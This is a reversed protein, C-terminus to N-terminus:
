DCSNNFRGLNDDDEVVNMVEEFVTLILSAHPSAKRNQLAIFAKALKSFVLSVVETNKLNVCIIFPKAVVKSNTTIKLLPAWKIIVDNLVKGIHPDNRYDINSIFICLPEKTNIFEAPHIKATECISTFDEFKMVHKTLEKLHNNNGNSILISSKIWFQMVTLKDISKSQHNKELIITLFRIGDEINLCNIELFTKFTVDFKPVDNPDQDQFDDALLCLNAIMAPLWMSENEGFIEECHPLLINFLKQSILLLKESGLSKKRLERIKEIIKTLSEFVRDQESATGNSLYKVIWSNLLIEEGNEFANEDDNPHHLFIIPFADAIIKLMSTVSSNNTAKKTLQEVQTMLKSAYNTIDMQNERHLILMAIHGKMMHHQLNVKELSIQLMTESVKNAIYQFSTSVSLTIFLQLINHIGIENLTQLKSSPFKTYIRGLIKQVQIMQDDQTFRQVIKGLLHVFMEYSTWNPNLKTTKRQQEKIRKLYGAASVSSVTMFSPNQGAVLFPSNIKKQFKEWLIILIKSKPTWVDFILLNEESQEVKLYNKTLSEFLEYSRKRQLVDASNRILIKTLDCFFWVMFLDLNKKTAIKSSTRLLNKKSPIEQYPNKEEYMISFIKSLITWIDISDHQLKMMLLYIITWIEKVCSCIFTTAFNISGSSNCKNYKSISLTILDYMLLLVEISFESGDNMLIGRSYDLKYMMTLYIWRWELQGHFFHYLSSNSVNGEICCASSVSSFNIMADFTGFTIRLLELDRNSLDYIKCRFILMLRTVEQRFNFFTSDTNLFSDVMSIALKQINIRAIQVIVDVPLDCDFTYGSLEM